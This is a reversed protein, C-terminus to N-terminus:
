TRVPMVVGVFEAGSAKAGAPHIKAPDLEGGLGIAVEDSQLAVLADLLYKANFGIAMKPGDYAVPLEDVGDGGEPSESSVRLLGKSLAFRVGGTKDNAAVSVAKVADALASVPAVATNACAKPIVQAYPPFTADVLKAGFTTSGFSFFVSASNRSIVLEPPGNESGGAKVEDCVRRLEHVAKLPILMTAEARRGALTTEAKALRHGDTGVMRVTEGDWELLASSLHARTEDTSVAHHTREILESLVAAPISMTAADDDASAVPPFDEGPMGRLTYRRASGGAKLVVAGPKAADVTVPGDPMMKVREFLDKAPLAITGPKSVDAQVSAVLSLFLDTATLKLAGDKGAELLVSSLVPMTSKRDAVGQVRQLVRLFDRKAITLQM